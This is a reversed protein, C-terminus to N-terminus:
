REKEKKREAQRGTKREERIHSSSFTPSLLLLALKLKEGDHVRINLYLWACVSVWLLPMM